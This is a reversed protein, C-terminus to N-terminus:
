TARSKRRRALRWIGTVLFGGCLSFVTALSLWKTVRAEVGGDYNLTIECTGRCAPDIALMGLGDSFTRQPVGLVTAHWGPTYTMAVSVVQGPLIDSRVKVWDARLEEWSAVPLSSDEIAAVYPTIPAVDFPSRPARSVVATAPIIRALGGSRQPVRYITDGRDREIVPLLGEFLNPNRRFPKYPEESDPGPVNIGHVGFAKLWLVYSAGDLRAADLGGYQIFGAALLVPNANFQDHSGALQRVGTFVNAWLAPSGAIMVRERGFYNEMRQPIRYEVTHLLDTPPVILRRAFQWYHGTQFVGALIAVGTVTLRVGRAQARLLRDAAFAGLLCLAIEMELHFRLPQPLANWGLPSGLLTISTLLTSLLLFFRLHPEQWKRSCYLAAAFLLGVIGIALFSHATWRFDGGAAQADRGTVSILSPPLWPCVCLYALSGIALIIRLQAWFPRTRTTAVLCVLALFLFVLGFVNTLAVAAASVGALVYAWPRRGTLSLHFLLVALPVLALTAVQPGGGYYVLARLRQASLVGGADQRVIPILFTAPSILSYALGAVFSPTVRSSMRWALLLIAVPGLCYLVATVFHYSMAPSWGTIRAALAVAAPIGPLYTNQFPLGTSWWPWWPSAGPSQLMARSIAIFTGEISFFHRLYEIRFLPWVIAVNLAFLAAAGSAVRM